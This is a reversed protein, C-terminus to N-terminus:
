HAGPMRPAVAKVPAKAIVPAKAVVKVPAPTTKAAVAKVPKATEKEPAAAAEQAPAESSGEVAVAAKKVKKAPKKDGALAAFQETVKQLALGISAIANGLKELEKKEVLKVNEISM